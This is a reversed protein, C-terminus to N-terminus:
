GENQDPGQFVVTGVFSLVMKAMGSLPFIIQSETKSKGEM